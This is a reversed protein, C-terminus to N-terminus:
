LYFEPSWQAVHEVMKTEEWTQDWRRSDGILVFTIPRDTAPATKFTSEQQESGANIRYNYVTEPALGTIRVRHITQAQTEEAKKDYAGNQGYEAVGVSAQPTEWILTAGEKSVNQLHPRIYLGSATAPAEQADAALVPVTAVAALLVLCFLRMKIM